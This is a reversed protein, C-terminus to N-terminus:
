GPRSVEGLLIEWPRIAVIRLMDTAAWPDAALREHVDDETEADVILLFQEDGQGLPGGLVIFRRDALADMFRAHEDWGVQQRMPISPNWAPGRERTVALYRV